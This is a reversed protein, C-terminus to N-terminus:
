SRRASVTSGRTLTMSTETHSDGIAFSVYRGYGDSPLPGLKEPSHRPVMHAGLTTIVPIRDPVCIDRSVEGASGGVQAAEWKKGKRSRSRCMVERNIGEETDEGAAVPVGDKQTRQTRGRPVLRIRGVGM